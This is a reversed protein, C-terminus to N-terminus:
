SEGGAIDPLPRSVRPSLLRRLRGRALTLLSRVSSETIELAEAVERTPCQELDRLVFVERERPSLVALAERVLQVLEDRHADGRPDPLLDPWGRWEAADAEKEKRTRERRLRDRCLNTVVANRWPAYAQHASWRGLHDHLHTMADQAAEDAEAEDALLGFCLKWVVPHEAEFWRGVADPGGVLVAAALSDPGFVNM